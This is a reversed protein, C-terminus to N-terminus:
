KRKKSIAMAAAAVIAPIVALGVGTAPNSDQAAPTVVDVTGAAATDDEDDDTIVAALDDDNTDDDDDDAIITADDDDDDDDDDAILATDDDDDDDADVVAAADDDDAVVADDDAAAAADADAAAPADDYALDVKTVYMGYADTWANKKYGVNLGYYIDHLTAMTLTGSQNLYDSIDFTVTGATLDAKAPAFMMGTTTEYNFFLAFNSTVTGAGSGILGVETSPIGSNWAGSSGAAAASTFNFTITGNNQKNFFEAVQGALGAFGVPGTGATMADVYTQTNIDDKTASSNTGNQTQSTHAGTVSLKWVDDRYITTAGKYDVSTRHSNKVTTVPLWANEKSTAPSGPQFTVSGYADKSVYWGNQAFAYALLHATSNAEGLYKVAINADKGIPTRGVAIKDGKKILWEGAQKLDNTKYGASPDCTASIYKTLDVAEYVDPNAAVTYYTGTVKAKDTPIATAALYYIVDAGDQTNDAKWKKVTVKVTSIAATTAVGDVNSAAPINTTNVVDWTYTTDATGETHTIKSWDETVKIANSVFVNGAITGTKQYFTDSPNIKASKTETDGVSGAGSANVTLVDTLELAQENDIEKRDATNVPKTAAKGYTYDLNATTVIAKHNSDVDTLALGDRIDVSGINFNRTNKNSDTWEKYISELSTSGSIKATFTMDTIRDFYFSAFEGDHYIPTKKDLVVIYWKGKTAFDGDWSPYTNALKFEKTVSQTGSFGSVTLKVETIKQGWNTDKATNLLGSINTALDDFVVTQVDVQNLKDAIDRNVEAKVVIENSSSASTYYLEYSRTQQEASVVSALSTVALTAAVGAALIKNIKMILSSLGSKM